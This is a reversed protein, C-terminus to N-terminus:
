KRNAEIMSFAKEMPIREGTDDKKVEDYLRIDEMEELEDILSDFEHVSLIVMSRNGDADKIYQPHIALM